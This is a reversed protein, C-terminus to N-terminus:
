HDACCPTPAPDEFPVLTAGIHPMAALVLTGDEWHPRVFERTVLPTAPDPAGPTGLVRVREIASRDLLEAVTLTGTLAAAGPYLVARGRDDWAGDTVTHGGATLAGRAADVATRSRSGLSLAVRRRGGRRVLHTCGYLDERGPFVAALERLLHDADRLTTVDTDVGVVYPPPTM